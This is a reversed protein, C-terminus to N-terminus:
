MVTNELITRRNNLGKIDIGVDFLKKRNIFAFGKETCNLVPINGLAKENITFNAFELEIQHLLPTDDNQTEFYSVLVNETALTM